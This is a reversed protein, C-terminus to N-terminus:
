AWGSRQGISNCSVYNLKGGKQQGSKKSRFPPFRSTKPSHKQRQTLSPIPHHSLPTSFPPQYTSSPSRASHGIMCGALLQVASVSSCLGSYLVESAGGGGGEGEACGRGRNRSIVLSLSHTSNVRSFTQTTHHGHGTVDAVM